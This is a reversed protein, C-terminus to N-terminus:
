GGGEEFPRHLCESGIPLADDEHAAEGAVEVAQGWTKGAESQVSRLGVIHVEGDGIREAHDAILAQVIEQAGVAQDPLRPESQPMSWSTAGVERSLVRRRAGNIRVKLEDSGQVARVALLSDTTRLLVVQV